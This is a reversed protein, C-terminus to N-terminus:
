WDSVKVEVRNRYLLSEVQEEGAFTTEINTLGFVQPIADSLM